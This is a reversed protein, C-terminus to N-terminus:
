LLASTINRNLCPKDIMILLSEKLELLCKKNERMLISFDDYSVSHNCLLLHDAVSSNKPQVQKRTLPSIGIHEGIRVNLHTICETRMMLPSMASDVSVDIFLVLLLIKPFRIRSILNFMVMDRTTIQKSYYKYSLKKMM